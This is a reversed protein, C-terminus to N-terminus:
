SGSEITLKGDADGDYLKEALDYRLKFKNNQDFLEVTLPLQKREKIQDCPYNFRCYNEKWNCDVESYVNQIDDAMQVWEFDPLYLYKYYPNFVISVEDDYQTGM